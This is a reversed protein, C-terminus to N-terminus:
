RIWYSCIEFETLGGSMLIVRITRKGFMEIKMRITRPSEMSVLVDPLEKNKKRRSKLSSVSFVYLLFSVPNLAHLIQTPCSQTLNDFRKPNIYSEIL